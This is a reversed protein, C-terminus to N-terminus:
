EHNRENSLRRLEGCFVLTDGIDERESWAGIVGDSRWAEVLEAGTKAKAHSSLLRGLGEGLAQELVEEVPIRTEASVTEAKRRLEDSVTMTLGM